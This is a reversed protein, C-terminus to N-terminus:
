AVLTGVVTVTSTNNATTVLLQVDTGSIGASISSASGNTGVIGYETIAINDSTDLTLLVKSVETHTSYAVKVLYEASRYDAKAFAHAVQIGATPASLTAAVQKAVSNLEVATFNPVVAELADVARVDTFYLNTTGEDLDDTDSDAVGNEATITLGTGTGTITINTLLAGTLLDAASTKARGDTFYLNTAGEEIDDTDILDIQDEITGGVADIARQNTFYLNTGEEIVTTTIADVANTIATNRNSVETTIASDTYSNADTEATNAYGQATTLATTIEGDTYSNATTVADAEATNAYNQYATTIATERGDTYSNAATEADDAYGQAATDLDSIETDVYGKTAADTSTNPARLSTVSHTGGFDLDGSMSDGAKAVKEGISTTVTTIFDEDDGIAQALENLTDLLEPAGNILDAVATDVYSKTAADQNASPNLLGSVKYGGAALDSGLTKNSLTQTDTTGVVNGTVGHASTDSEHTSLDGAVTGVIGDAYSKADAEATDAYSEYATTIATERADTYAKADTEAQDAYGQTALVDAGWKVSSGAAPTLVIHSDSNITMAGAGTFNLTDGITKNTLTQTNTTGVVAGTAGHAVTANEHDTLDGAVANAKNTADTAAASQAASASGAADYAANTADLARQNTFYLSTGEALDATDHNSLSSVTGTVNGTVDGTIDATITGAAFDGNADRKVVKNAENASTATGGILNVIYTQDATKKTLVDFGNVTATTGEVILGSKIKFDKNVTAM